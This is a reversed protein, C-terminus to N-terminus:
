REGVPSAIVAVGTADTFGGTINVRVRHFRSNSRVPCEGSSNEPTDSGWSITGAQTERTGMQVSHTGGDVIPIVRTIETRQGEMGEPQFEGTEITADLATGTFYAQKHDTDFASLQLKGGMWVKSDLPFALADLDASIADLEELTTGVSMSRFLLDHSLEATSWRQSAWNYMIIKNPTGDVSGSGPYSWMVVKESPLAAATVRHLYEDNLDALFTRDVKGFGIPVSQGGSIAYFGDDAIYYIIGGVQIVGRPCLAGRADEIQDFNFVVPSGVYTALWISREQFIVAREGGIIAQVWGGNGQLDQYDSQTTPSVTWDTSDNLASWRVRNPVNGDSADYTNGVMVFDRVVAIHRAKPASAALDAFTTGGLTVVQIADDFNTAICTDGWKAFEWYSDTACSYGGVKSSDTQTTGVLRYLKSADGSYSSVAGASSVASFAGRCYATLASSYASLGNLQIYGVKGPIINKATTAGPNGLKPLDPTYDGFPIIM